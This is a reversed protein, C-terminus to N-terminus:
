SPRKAPDDGFAARAEVLARRIEPFGLDEGDGDSGLPRSRTDGGLTCHGCVKVWRGDRLREVIAELQCWGPNCGSCECTILKLQSLQM